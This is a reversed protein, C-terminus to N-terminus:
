FRARLETEYQVGSVVFAPSTSTITLGIYKGWQQADYKYLFYGLTYNAWSVTVLSNNQWSVTANSNNKWLVTNSNALTTTPSSGNESDVTVTISNGAQYSLIAEVGFKLAQKDRIIDNMGLLSTQIKSAIATTADQYLKQLNTGTTGFLVAAGSVPISVLFLQTGQSTFFWKKDFYVAQIVRASSLPDNYTFCFAACLINNIVVQGCTVNQTFDIYPFVGDLADSLKTTTSGVLAYVGYRNIFMISRFYPMLGNPIDSGVSASINTNTFLTVGSSNVRVDSFVNISDIGFVYLFNNASILQTVNGILTADNLIISGASVSIFDTSSGAATYYVTRGNAIWVRGSFSAISTGPQSLLTMTASLGSGTGLTYTLGTPTGATTVIAPGNYTASLQFTTSGNTAIIYYTTPNAYGTISGTGGLTGSIVVSAGNTLVQNNCSFQGATGTILVNALTGLNSVASITPAATYGSGAQTVTIGTVVGASAIITGTAQVGGTQNPASFTISAGTIYGTGGSAITYGGIAGVSVLNTGNWQFYGKVPDIILVLTNNWQSAQIGSGSFTGAVALTTKANSTLNVVEAGGNGFFALYFNTTGVNGYAAYVVTQSFTVGGVTSTTPTIKMNGHGIPMANELWAFEEEKISTRNAKTNVGAFDKIVKYDKKQEQSAM